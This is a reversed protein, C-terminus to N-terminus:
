NFGLAIERILEEGVYLDYDIGGKQILSINRNWNVNGSWAINVAYVVNGAIAFTIVGVAAFFLCRGNNVNLEGYESEYKALIDLLNQSIASLEAENKFDASELNLAQLDRKLPENEIGELSSLIVTPLILQDGLQMAKKIKLFDQSYVADQLQDFYTPYMKEIQNIYGEVNATYGTLFEPNEENAEKIMDVNMKFSPITEAVDGLSFFVNKFVEKGDLQPAFIENEEVTTNTCSMMFFLLSCALLSIKSKM